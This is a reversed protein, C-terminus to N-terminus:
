SGSSNGTPASNGGASGPPAKSGGGSGPPCAKRGTKPDVDCPRNPDDQPEIKCRASCGDGNKRNGDDCEEDQDKQLRANGCSANVASEESGFEEDAGGCGTVPGIGIGLGLGFVCFLLTIRMNLLLKM